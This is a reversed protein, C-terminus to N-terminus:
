KVEFIPSTCQKEIFSCVVCHKVTKKLTIWFGQSVKLMKKLVWVVDTIWGISLHQPSIFTGLGLSELYWPTLICFPVKCKCNPVVDSFMQFFTIFPVDGLYSTKLSYQAFIWTMWPLPPLTTHIQSSFPIVSSSITPHCWRSSPCSNSYVGPTPSPCPLRSHQLGHPRLSDSMVSLSFQVSSICYLVNWAIFNVSIETYQYYIFGLLKHSLDSVNTYIWIVLKMSKVRLVQLFNQLLQANRKM